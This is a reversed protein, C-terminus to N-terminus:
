DRLICHMICERNVWTPLNSEQMRGMQRPLCCMLGNLRRSVNLEDPKMEAISNKSKKGQRHPQTSSAGLTESPHKGQSLWGAESREMLGALASVRLQRADKRVKTLAWNLSAEFM